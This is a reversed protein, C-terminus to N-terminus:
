SASAHIKYLKGEKVAIVGGIATGPPAVAQWAMGEPAPEKTKAASSPLGILGSGIVVDNHDVVLVCDARTGGITAWGSLLTDGTLPTGTEGRTNGPETGRPLPAPTSIQSGLEPGGCGLTFTDNFPYAGLSRAAPAAARQIRLADLVTPADVRLAVAALNLPGYDNRVRDAKAGGIAHTLLAVTMTAILLHRLPWQPRNIAMLALLASTVLAGIVVYRSVLGVNGGPLQDTTRGMALMGALVIAYTALAIWGSVRPTVERALYVLAAVTIGGAIVAVVAIDASWLGGLAAALVSLRGDPDFASTALSQQGSPKTLFWTVVVVIGIMGPLAVRLRCDKRLWAILALVFWIPLAAGFSLCGLVAAIGAVWTLGRHACAIALVCFFVAPIWSIGNTGQLWLEAAHSTFLLWSFGAVVVSKKTTSLSVPLMSHLAAVIGAVLLVTLITLIRNDGGFWAADAWFLLSPLVFPQDLHYTFLQGFLLGGDDDTIKALVHWYDLLVHMKPARVATFLALGFPVAAFLWLAVPGARRWLRDPM